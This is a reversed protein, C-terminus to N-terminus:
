LALQPHWFIGHHNRNQQNITIVVDYCIMNHYLYRLQSRIFLHSCLVSETNNVLSNIVTHWWIKEYINNCDTRFVIKYWVLMHVMGLLKSQTLHIILLSLIQTLLINTPTNNRFDAWFLVDCQIIIYHNHWERYNSIQKTVQYMYIDM